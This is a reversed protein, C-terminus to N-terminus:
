TGACGDWFAVSIENYQPGNESIMGNNILGQFFQTRTIATTDEQPPEEPPCFAYLKALYDPDAPDLELDVGDSRHAIQMGNSLTEISLITLNM